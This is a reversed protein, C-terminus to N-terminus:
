LGLRLEPNIETLRAELVQGRWALMRRLLLPRDCIPRDLGDSSIL